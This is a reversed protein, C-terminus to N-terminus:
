RFYTDRYTQLSGQVSLSFATTFLSVTCLLMNCIKGKLIVWRRFQGLLRCDFSVLIKWWDLRWFNDWVSSRFLQVSMLIVLLVIHLLFGVLHISRWWQFSQQHPAPPPGAAETCCSSWWHHRSTYIRNRLVTVIPLHHRVGPYHQIHNFWRTVNAFQEKEQVALDVQTPSSWTLQHDPFWGIRSTSSVLLRILEAM